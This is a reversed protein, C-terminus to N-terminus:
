YKSIFQVILPVDHKLTFNETCKFVKCGRNCLILPISLAFLLSYRLMIIGLFRIIVLYMNYVLYGITARRAQGAPQWGKPRTRRALLPIKCVFICSDRINKNNVETYQLYKIEDLWICKAYVRFLCRPSLTLPLTRAGRSWTM